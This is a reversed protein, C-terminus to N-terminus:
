VGFRRSVADWEEGGLRQMMSAVTMGGAPAPHRKTRALEALALDCAGITAMLMLAPVIAIRYGMAEVEQLDSSPSKGGVVFNLLCPGKVLSPIRAVEDMSQPAEVFAVDAGADFCANMRAVAEDLGDTARADTRAIIVTDPSRRAAAAAAIKRVFEARPIVTKGELHGCRKPFTQDEIQIGAVGRAEYERVTRTVNLENGFGTDADAIVPVRVAGAIRGANEVMETMSVLGYDPYGLMMASCGGSMYVAPYGGQEILRASICDYAGPAVLLSPQKLAHRLTSAQQMTDERQARLL